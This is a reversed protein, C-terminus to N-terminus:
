SCRVSVDGERSRKAEICTERHRWTGEARVKFAGLGGGIELGLGTLGTEGPKSALGILCERVGGCSMVLEPPALRPAAPDIRLEALHQPAPPPLPLPTDDDDRERNSDILRVEDCRGVASAIPHQPSWGGGGVPRCGM